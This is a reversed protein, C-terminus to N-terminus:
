VKFAILIVEREKTGQQALTEMDAVFGPWQQPWEFRAICVLLKAVKEKMFKEMAVTEFRNALLSIIEYRSVILWPSKSARRPQLPWPRGSASSM